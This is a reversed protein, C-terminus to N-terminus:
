DAPLGVLESSVQWLRAAAADDRAWPRAEVQRGDIFYAGSIGAVDPDLALRLSTAAGQEPTKMFPKLLPPLVRGLWGNQTGLGTSVAGPHLANVTVGTGALRRALERTFLLNALKSHGYVRFTRYGRESQLDDFPMGRVFHHANSSVNVIRSPPAPAAQLLPLLLRTLLFPALHNVAFQEEFGDRSLQRRTNIVAANNILVDLRSHEAAFAAAAERVAPLSTMDCQLLHLRADERRRRADEQLTLGKDPNRCLVTVACGRDILGLATARGIGGTAGTILVNPQAGDMVADM